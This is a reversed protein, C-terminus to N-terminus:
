HMRVKLITASSTCCIWVLAARCTILQNVTNCSVNTCCRFRDLIEMYTGVVFIHIFLAATRLTSYKWTLCHLAIAWYNLPSSVSVIQELKSTMMGRWVLVGWSFFGWDKSKEFDILLMVLLSNFTAIYKDCGYIQFFLRFFTACIPLSMFIWVDCM